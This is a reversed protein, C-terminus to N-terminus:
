IIKAFGHIMSPIIFIIIIMTIILTIIIILISLIYLSNPCRAPAQKELWLLGLIYRTGFLRSELELWWCKPSCQFFTRDLGRPQLNHHRLRSVYYDLRHSRICVIIHVWPHNFWYSTFLATYGIVMILVFIYLILQMAATDQYWGWYIEFQVTYHVTFIYLINNTSYFTFVIYQRTYGWYIDNTHVTFVIYQVIYQKYQLYMINDAPIHDGGLINWVASHGIDAALGTGSEHM